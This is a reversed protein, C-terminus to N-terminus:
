YGTNQKLNPNAALDSAPIPYLRRYEAVGRGAEVGGKWAWLYSGSTFKGFRILDTRRHGEWHLERAREDLIFDLTLQEDTINGSTNGYARQRLANIYGLATARDGGAGGRLVAEAYILYADALRFLPFDTDPFELHSGAGGGSKINKFKTLPYGNTFDNIAEIEKTHGTTHYIGRSDGSPFLDIVQPTTRIGGWGGSVGYDTQANMNAGLQAHILFTTGGWSRTNIGDFAIPLIIEQQASTPRALKDNDAQFLSQYTPALTYGADIVRKAYTIADTYRAQGTYVEANQYLKALVMWAAAKDARPYENQRPAVLEAEVAKLEAEVFNFLETRSMQPPTFFGVPDAETVFPVNGYMDLAHWYSMARMFRAEARYKRAEVQNAESIGNENLKADTTNRIFENCLAIQYFIRDYMMRVAETGSNWNMNHVPFVDSWAIVAEDTSLEQLTWLARVYNSKGEDFGALDPAGDAGKLGTVAYGGYLKALVPKYNAFDQYLTASTVEYKPTLDLDDTCSTIAFALVGALVM